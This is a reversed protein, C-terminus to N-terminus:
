NVIMCCQQSEADTDKCEDVYLKPHIGLMYKTQTCLIDKAGRNCPYM